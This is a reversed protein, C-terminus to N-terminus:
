KEKAWVRVGNVYSSQVELDDNLIIFDADAGPNLTGKSKEIGLIKAPKYSAADIAEPISCQTFSKFNRVAQDMSLISGAITNTGKLYAGGKKVDVTMSGLTFEGDPLGLAQIADTVLVFGQPNTKWALNVTTEHLHIGDAIVSYFMQPDQLVAGVIGPNRHHLPPMANFLHTALQVGQQKATKLEDYNASTHGASVVIGKNKLSMIAKEMGPLEPALTVIKVGNLTGYIDELDTSNRIMDPNHAGSQKASFFPGELHIGLISAGQSGGAMPQLHPIASAYQAKGLSM